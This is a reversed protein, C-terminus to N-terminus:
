SPWGTVLAGFHAALDVSKAAHQGIRRLNGIQSVAALDSVAEANIDKLDSAAALAKAGIDASYRAYVFRRGLDTTLPHPDVM